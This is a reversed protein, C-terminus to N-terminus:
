PGVNVGAPTSPILGQFTFALSPSCPSVSGVANTAQVGLFLAGSPMALTSLLVAKTTNVLPAPPVGLNGVDRVTSGVTPVGQASCLTANPGFVVRISAFDNLPAGSTNTTPVTFNVSNTPGCVSNTPNTVTNCVAQAAVPTALALGLLLIVVQIMNYGGLKPNKAYAGVAGMAVSAAALAWEGKTSPMKGGVGITYTAAAAAVGVVTTALNGYVREWFANM